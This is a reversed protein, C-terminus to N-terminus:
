EPMMRDMKEQWRLYYDYFGPYQADKELSEARLYERARSVYWIAAVIFGVAAGALSVVFPALQNQNRHSLYARAAAYVLLVSSLSLLSVIGRTLSASYSQRNIAQLMQRYHSEMGARRRAACRECLTGNTHTRCYPRDCEGGYGTCPATNTQPCRFVPCSANM